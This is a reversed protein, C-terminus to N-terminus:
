EMANFIAKVLDNWTRAKGSGINFLGNKDRNDLFFLTM